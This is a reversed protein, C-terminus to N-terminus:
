LTHPTPSLSNPPKPSSLFPPPSSYGQMLPVITHYNNIPAYSMMLQFSSIDGQERARGGERGGEVM